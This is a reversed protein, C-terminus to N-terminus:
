VGACNVADSHKSKNPKQELTNIYAILNTHEISGITGALKVSLEENKVLGNKTLNASGIIATFCGGKEFYYLKSHLRRGKVNFIKHEVGTVGRLENVVEPKTYGAEGNSFIKIKLNNEKIGFKISPLLLKLGKLDFFSTCLVCRDSSSIRESIVELHAKGASNTVLDM